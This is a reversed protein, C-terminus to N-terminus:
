IHSYKRFHRLFFLLPLLFFRCLSIQLNKFHSLVSFKEKLQNFKIDRGTDDEVIVKISKKWEHQVYFDGYHSDIFEAFLRDKQYMLHFYDGFVSADGRLRMIITDKEIRVIWRHFPWGFIREGLESPSEIYGARAVRSLESTFELPDDVHELIHSTIVYDFSQDKFPLALGDAVVFPREDIIINEGFARQYNDDIFRDCLVNSRKRPRNGGGIELVRDTRKINLM